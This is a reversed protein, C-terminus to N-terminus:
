ASANEVKSADVFIEGYMAKGDNFNLFGRIIRYVYWIALGIFAIGAIFNVFPVVLLLGFVFSWLFSFWFTRMMWRHHSEVWTGSTESRKIHNVIVGAIAALPIILGVMYCIYAILASNKIKDDSM